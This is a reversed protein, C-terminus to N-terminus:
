NILKTLEDWGAPQEPSMVKQVNVRNCLVLYRVPRVALCVIM